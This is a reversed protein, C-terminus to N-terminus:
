RSAMSGLATLVVETARGEQPKARVAIQGNLDLTVGKNYEDDCPLRPIVQM